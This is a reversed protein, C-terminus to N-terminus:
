AEWKMHTTRWIARVMVGIYMALSIGLLWHSPQLELTLAVPIFYLIMGGAFRIASSLNDDKPMPYLVMEITLGSLMGSLVFGGIGRYMTTPLIGYGLMLCMAEIVSYWVLLIALIIKKRV